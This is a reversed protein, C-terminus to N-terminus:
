EDEKPGYAREALESGLLLDALRRRRQAPTDHPYRRRLGALAFERATETLEVMLELKRQTSMQRFRAVQMAEIEPDTDRSLVSM